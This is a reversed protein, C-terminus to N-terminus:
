RRWIFSHDTVVRRPMEGKADSRTSCRLISTRTIEVHGAADPHLNDFWVGRGSTGDDMPGLFNVTPVDWSNLLLNM